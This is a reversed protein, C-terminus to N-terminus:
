ISIVKQLFITSNQALFTIEDETTFMDKFNDGLGVNQNLIDRAFRGINVDWVLLARVSKDKM